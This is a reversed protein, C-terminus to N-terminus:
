ISVPNKMLKELKLRQLDVPTKIMRLEKDPKGDEGSKDGPGPKEVQSQQSTSYSAM